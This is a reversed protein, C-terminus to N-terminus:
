SFISNPDQLELVHKNEAPERAQKMLQLLKPIDTRRIHDLQLGFGRFNSDDGLFRGVYRVTGGLEINDSGPLLIQIALHHNVLPCAETKIFMGGLSLDAVRGTFIKKGDHFRCSLATKCRIRRRQDADQPSATRAPSPKM